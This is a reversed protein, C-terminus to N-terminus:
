ILDPRSNFISKNLITYYLILLFEKGNNKLSLKYSASCLRFDVLLVRLVGFLVLDLRLDFLGVQCENVPM